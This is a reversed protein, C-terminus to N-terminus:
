EDQSKERGTDMTQELDALLYLNVDAYTDLGVEFPNDMDMILLLLGITLMNIAAFLLLGLLPPDVRLFLLVLIVAGIAVQSIAYATPIFSTEAITSVRNSIRDISTLENRMRVLIPPAVNLEALARIDGNIKGIAVRVTTIDWKNARFNRCIAKLLAHLDEHFTRRLTDDGLPIFDIDDSLSQISTALDGPIKESEKYDVLTGTFIIAITFMVAGVFSTLLNNIPLVELGAVVVGAKIVLLVAVIRLTKLLLGWKKRDM